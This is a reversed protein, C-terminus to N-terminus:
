PARRRRTYFDPNPDPRELEDTTVNYLKALKIWFRYHLDRGTVEATRLHQYHITADTSSIADCVEQLTWGRKWRLRRLQNPLARPLHTPRPGRRKHISSEFPTNM